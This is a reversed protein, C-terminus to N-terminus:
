APVATEAAPEAPECVVETPHGYTWVVKGCGIFRCRTCRKDTEIPLGSAKCVKDESTKM